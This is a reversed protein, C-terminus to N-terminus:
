QPVYDANALDIIDPMAEALDIGGALVKDEPVPNEKYGKGLCYYLSSGPGEKYRRHMLLSGLFEAAEDGIAIVPVGNKSISNLLAEKGNESIVPNGSIVILMHESYERPHSESVFVGEPDYETVDFQFVKVPLTEESVQDYYVVKIVPMLHEFEAPVAGIWYITLDTQAIADLKATIAEKRDINEQRKTSSGFLIAVFLFFMAALITLVFLGTKSRNM